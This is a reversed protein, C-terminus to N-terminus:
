EALPLKSDAVFFLVSRVPPNHFSQKGTLDAVAAVFM